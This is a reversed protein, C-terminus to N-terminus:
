MWLKHEVGAMMQLLEFVFTQCIAVLEEEVLLVEGDLGGKMSLDVVELVEVVLMELWALEWAVGGMWPEQHAM